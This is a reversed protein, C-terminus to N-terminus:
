REKELIVFTCADDGKAKCHTETVEAGAFGPIADLLGRIFGTLFHCRPQSSRLGQCFPCLVVNLRDGEARAISFPSVAPLVVSRLGGEVTPAVAKGAYKQQFIRMGAEQGLATLALRGEDGEVTRDFDMVPGVLDPYASVIEELVPGIVAQELPVEQVRKPQEKMKAMLKRVALNATMNLLPINIRPVCLICLCGGRLSKVIFRGETYILDVDGVKRRRATQLGAVTQVAARGVVSLMADDFIGPLASALVEGEENCIFSGTVGVVANVDKLIDQM